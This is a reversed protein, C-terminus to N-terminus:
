ERSYYIGSLSAEEMRGPTKRPDKGSYKRIRTPNNERLCKTTVNEDVTHRWKRLSTGTRVSLKRISVGLESYHKELRIRTPFVAKGDQRLKERSCKAEATQRERQLIVLESLEVGSPRDERVRNGRSQGRGLNDTTGPTRDTFSYRRTTQARHGSKTARRKERKDMVMVDPASTWNINPLWAVDPLSQISRGVNGIKQVPLRRFRQLHHQPHQQPHPQQHPQLYAWLHSRPQQYKTSTVHNYEEELREIGKEWQVLWEPVRVSAHIAKTSCNITYNTSDTFGARLRIQHFVIYQIRLEKQMPAWLTNGRPDAKRAMTHTSSDAGVPSIVRMLEHVGFACFVIVAFVALLLLIQSCHEALWGEHGHYRISEHVQKSRRKQAASASM